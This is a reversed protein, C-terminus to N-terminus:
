AYVPNKSLKLILQVHFHDKQNKIDLHYNNEYLLDLRRKINELGIGSDSNEAPIEPKTNEITFRLHENDFKLQITIQLRGDAGRGHKFCNEVFPLLLMPAIEVDESFEEIDTHVCLLNQFRKKELAIYNQIHRIEANLSVVPKKTQYLIYDLLESLQLIMESTNQDNKLSLGYITNLSNFLFHPHIQLKLYDLEQEKFKLQAELIKNRLEENRAATAYNYKLLSFASSLAVVLYVSIMIYALSKTIPYSDEYTYGSTLVKAYFASICIYCASIVCAAFTYLGFHVYKKPILYGPIIQYVFAYTTMITVPLFFTAFTVVEEFAAGEFGFFFAFYALVLLWFLGHLLLKKSLNLIALLLRM